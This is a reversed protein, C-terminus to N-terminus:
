RARSKSFRRRRQALARDQPSGYEGEAGERISPDHEDERKRKHEGDEIVARHMPPFVGGWSTRLEDM